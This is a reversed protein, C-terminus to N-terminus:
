RSSWQPLHVYYMRNKWRQGDTTPSVKMHGNHAMVANIKCLCGKSIGPFSFHWAYVIHHYTPTDVPKHILCDQSQFMRQYLINYVLGSYCPSTQRENCIVCWGYIILEQEKDLNALPATQGHGWHLMLKALRPQTELRNYQITNIEFELLDKYLYSFLDCVV